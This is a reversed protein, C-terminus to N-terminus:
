GAASPEDALEAAPELRILVGKSVPTHSGEAVSELPVLVNAEPYYAAACGRATPYSVLRFNRLVRDVGDAYVGHVDVYQGDSLGLEALDEPSVFVVHRGKKVGRYRDNHGYITTNFQDHSRMSQLILTKDPRELYELENVTIMAKGTPTNFTRSDRPGHPLLFGDRQRIRRNYDDFGVVVHSIHDRILDYNREYGAWDAQIRDGVVKAALRSIIAVESLLKPGVPDV